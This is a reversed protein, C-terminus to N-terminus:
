AECPVPFLPCTETAPPAGMFGPPCHWEWIGQHGKEPLVYPPLKLVALFLGYRDVSSCDILSAWSANDELWATDFVLATCVIQGHPYEELKAAEWTRNAMYAQAADFAGDDWREGAHIAIRQNRLSRFRAHTRTEIHKWGLAVWTAWPQWLTIAKM